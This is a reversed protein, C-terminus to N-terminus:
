RAGQKRDPHHLTRRFNYSDIVLTIDMCYFSFRSIPEATICLNLAIQHSFLRLNAFYQATKLNSFHCVDRKFDRESIWVIAFL